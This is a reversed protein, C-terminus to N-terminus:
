LGVLKRLHALGAQGELQGPVSIGFLVSIEDMMIMPAPGIMM